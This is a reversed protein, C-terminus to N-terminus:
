AKNNWGWELGTNGFFEKAPHIMDLTRGLKPFCLAWFIVIPNGSSCLLAEDGSFKEAWAILFYKLSASEAGHGIVGFLSFVTDEAKESRASPLDHFPFWTYFKGVWNNLTAQRVQISLNSTWARLHVGYMVINQTYAFMMIAKIM